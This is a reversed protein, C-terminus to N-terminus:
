SCTATPETELYEAVSHKRAQRPSARGCQTFLPQMDQQRVSTGTQTLSQWVPYFTTAYRTSPSVHRDPHPEAVSPLFHNCIKNVSQRAQRPAARDCQTFTTAYRTSPSVHRDPHPEAVSPLFHNCIKNVSQSVSQPCCLFGFSVDRLLYKGLLFKSATSNM